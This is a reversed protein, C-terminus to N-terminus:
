SGSVAGADSPAKPRAREQITAKKLADDLAQWESPRLVAGGIAVQMIREIHLSSKKGLIEGLVAAWGPGYKQKWAIVEAIIRQKEERQFTGQEPSRWATYPKNKKKRGSLCGCSKTNGSRLNCTPVVTTGGCSCQCKWLIAGNKMKGVREVVTLRGFTQGELNARKKRVGAM